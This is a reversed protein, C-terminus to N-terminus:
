VWYLTLTSDITNPITSINHCWLNTGQAPDPPHSYKDQRQKSIPNDNVQFCRGDDFDFIGLLWGRKDGGTGQPNWTKHIGVLTGEASPPLTGYIHVRGSASKGPTTSLLTVHGNEQYCLRVLDGPAAQLVPSGSTQISQRQAPACIPDNPLLQAGITPLMYTMAADNFAPDSRQVTRRYAHCSELKQLSVMEVLMDAKALSSGM